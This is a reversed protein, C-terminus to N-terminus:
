IMRPSHWRSMDYVRFSVLNSRDRKLFVVCRCLAEEGFHVKLTAMIENANM